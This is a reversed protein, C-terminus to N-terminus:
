CHHLQHHHTNIVRLFRLHLRLFVRGQSRRKRLSFLSSPPTTAPLPEPPALQRRRPWPTNQSLRRHGTRASAVSLKHTLALSRPDRSLAHASPTPFSFSGGSGRPFELNPLGDEPWHQALGLYFVKRRRA